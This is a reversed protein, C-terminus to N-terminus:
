FKVHISDLRAAGCRATWQLHPVHSPLVIAATLPLISRHDNRRFARPTDIGSDKSERASSTNSFYVASGKQYEQRDAIPERGTSWNQGRESM